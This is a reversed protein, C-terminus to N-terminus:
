FTSKSSLPFLNVVSVSMVQHLKLIHFITNKLEPFNEVKIEKIITEEENDKNEKEWFMTM